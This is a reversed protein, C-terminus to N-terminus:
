DKIVQKMQFEKRENQSNKKIKNLKRQQAFRKLEILDWKKIKIKMIRPPLYFLIKSFNM